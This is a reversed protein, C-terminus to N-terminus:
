QIETLLLFVKTQSRDLSYLYFTFTFITSKYLADDRVGYPRSDPRHDPPWAAELASEDSFWLQRGVLGSGVAQVCLRPPSGSRQSYEHM